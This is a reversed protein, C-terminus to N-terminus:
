RSDKKRFVIFDDIHNKQKSTAKALSRLKQLANLQHFLRLEGDELQLILEDGTHLNLAKRYKAPIIVRGGEGIKVHCQM